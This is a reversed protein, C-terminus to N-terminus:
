RGDPLEESKGAAAAAAAAAALTMAPDVSTVTRHKNPGANSVLPINPKSLMRVLNPSEEQTQM